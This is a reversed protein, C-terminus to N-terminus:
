GPRRTNISVQDIAKPVRGADDAPRFAQVATRVTTGPALEAVLEAYGQLQRSWAQESAEDSRGTKYDVIVWAGDADVFLRDLVYRRLQVGERRYLPLEAWSARKGRPSWMARLEASELARAVMAVLSERLVTLGEETAGARLLSADVAACHRRFWDASWRREPYEHLCQLWFHLAEGLATADREPIRLM